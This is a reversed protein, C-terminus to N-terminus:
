RKADSDKLFWALLGGFTYLHGIWNDPNTTLLTVGYVFSANGLNNTKSSLFEGVNQKFGPISTQGVSSEKFASILPGILGLIPIAM